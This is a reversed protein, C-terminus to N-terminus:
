EMFLRYDEFMSGNLNRVWSRAVEFIEVKAARWKSELCNLTAMCRRRPSTTGPSTKFGTLSRWACTIFTRYTSSSTYRVKIWWIRLIRGSAQIKKALPINFISSWWVHICPLINWFWLKRSEATKIMNGLFFFNFIPVNVVETTKKGPRRDKLRLNVDEAGRARHPRWGTEVEESAQGVKAYVEIAVLELIQCM